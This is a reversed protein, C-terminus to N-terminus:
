CPMRLPNHSRGGLFSSSQTCHFLALTRCHLGGLRSPCGQSCLGSALPSFPALIQLVISTPFFPPPHPGCIWQAPLNVKASCDDSGTVLLPPGRRMPCCSNVCGQHESMKKLQEGTASDWVRASKDPSASLIREGDTTWQLELVANKHGAPPVVHADTLSQPDM